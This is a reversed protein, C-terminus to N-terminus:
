KCRVKFFVRAAGERYSLDLEGANYRSAKDNDCEVFMEKEVLDPIEIRDYNTTTTASCERCPDDKKCSIFFVLILPLLKKM